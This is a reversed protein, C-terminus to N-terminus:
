PRQAPESRHSETDFPNTVSFHVTKLVRGNFTIDVRWDGNLDAKRLTVYSWTRMRPYLIKLPVESYRVGNLYYIHEILIPRSDSRVDTWVFARSTDSIQFVAQEGMPRRHRVGSCVVVSAVRIDGVPESVEPLSSNVQPQPAPVDAAAPSPVTQPQPANQPPELTPETRQAAMPKVSDPQIATPRAAVGATPAAATKPAVAVPPVPRRNSFIYIGVGVALFSVLILTKFLGTFKKTSKEGAQRETLRTRLRGLKEAFARDARNIKDPNM